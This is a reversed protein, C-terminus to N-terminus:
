QWESSQISVLRCFTTSFEEKGSCWPIYSNDSTSHRQYGYQEQIKDHNVSNASNLSLWKPFVWNDTKSVLRGIRLVWSVKAKPIQVLIQHRATVNCIQLCALVFVICFFINSCFCLRSWGLDLVKRRRIFQIWRRLIHRSIRWYNSGTQSCMKFPSVETISNVCCHKLYNLVKM